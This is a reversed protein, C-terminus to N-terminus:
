GNNYGRQYLDFIVDKLYETNSIDINPLENENIYDDFKSLELEIYDLIENEDNFKGEKIKMVNEKRDKSLPFIIKGENLLDYGQYICRLVHSVAKNDMSQKSKTLNMKDVNKNLSEMIDYLPTNELFKLHNIILMKRDNKEDIEIKSKGYDIILKNNYDDVMDYIFERTLRKKGESIKQKIYELSFSFVFRTSGTVKYRKVQNYSYGLISKKLIKTNLCKIRNEGYNNKDENFIKSLINDEIEYIIMDKNSDSYLIDIMNIDNKLLRESFKQISLIEFDIDQNTNKTNGDSTNFKFSSQYKNILVDKQNPLFIGKIDYDSTERNLGYLHSGFVVLYLLTGYKNNIDKLINLIKNKSHETLKTFSNIKNIINTYKNEKKHRINVKNSREVFEKTTCNKLFDELDMLKELSTKKM